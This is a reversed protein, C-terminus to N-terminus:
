CKTGEIIQKGVGFVWDWMEFKWKWCPTTNDTDEPFDVVSDSTDGFSLILPESETEFESSTEQNNRPKFSKREKKREEPKFDFVSPVSGPLYTKRGIGLSVRIQKPKFHFECVMFKKTKSFKDAGGARRYREIVQLCKKCLAPDKPLKFHSIGTKIRNADYFASQFGSICCHDGFGDRYNKQPRKKSLNQYREINSM